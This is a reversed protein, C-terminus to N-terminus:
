GAPVSHGPIADSTFRRLSNARHSAGSEALSDERSAVGLYVRTGSFRARSVRGVKAHVDTEIMERVMTTARVRPYLRGHAPLPCDNMRQAQLDALTWDPSPVATGAHSRRVRDLQDFSEFGRLDIEPERPAPAHVSEEASFCAGVVIEVDEHGFGVGETRFLREARAAVPEYLAIVFTTWDHVASSSPLDVGDCVMRVALRRGLELGSDHPCSVAM